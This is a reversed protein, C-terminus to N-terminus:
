TKKEGADVSMSEVVFVHMRKVTGHVEEGNRTWKQGDNVATM